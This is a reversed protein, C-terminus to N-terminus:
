TNTASRHKTQRCDIFTLRIDPSSRVLSSVVHIDFKGSFPREYEEEMLKQRSTKTKARENARVLAEAMVNDDMVQGMKLGSYRAKDEKGTRDIVLKPAYKKPPPGKLAPAPMDMLEYVWRRGGREM